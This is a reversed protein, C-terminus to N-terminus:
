QENELQDIATEIAAVLQPYRSLDAGWFDTNSLLTVIPADSNAWVDAFTAIVATDDNLPMTRGRWSGKYFLLLAAFATALRPPADGNELHHLLSPLVRVRFKSVSNLAIASLKHALAPNRFRDLTTAVYAEADPYPLTPVIEERLLDQLFRGFEADEVAERVTEFGRLLGLPVMSTHAGNLIRVKLTRTATLDDVFQVNCDTEGFPLEAALWAPAENAWLHYPEAAVLLRDDPAIDAAHAPFGTVIRDVLTNCFTNHDTLWTIFDASLEWTKAYDLVCDRLLDGNNANLETPLMVLGHDASGGFVQWREFLLRTLKAPFSRPPADTFQDAPDFVIGAETTNSIVFRVTEIHALALYDAFADSAVVREICDILELKQVREGAVIGETLVHYRGAQAILKEYRGPRAKVVAVGGDFDTQENLTQLLWDAFARLFNGAGFQIVRIPRNEM